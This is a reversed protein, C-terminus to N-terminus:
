VSASLKGKGRSEAACADLAITIRPRMLKYELVSPEMRIYAYVFVIILVFVIADYIVYDGYIVITM